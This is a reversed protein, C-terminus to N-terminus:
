PEVRTAQFIPGIQCTSGIEEAEHGHLTVEDGAREVVTGDPNRLESGRLEWGDPWIIEYRTGDDTEVYGCGGEITDSGIVGTISTVDDNLTPQESSPTLSGASPQSADPSTPDSGAPACATLLFLLPMANRM